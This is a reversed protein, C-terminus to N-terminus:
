QMYSLTMQINKEPQEGYLLWLVDESSAVRVWVKHQTTLTVHFLPYMEVTISIIDMYICHACVSACSCVCVCVCVCLQCIHVCASACVCM